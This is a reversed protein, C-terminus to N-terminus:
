FTSFEIFLGTTIRYKVKKKNSKYKYKCSNGKIGYSGVMFSSGVM